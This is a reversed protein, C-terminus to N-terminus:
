PKLAPSQSPDGGNKLYDSYQQDKKAADADGLATDVQKLEDLIRASHTADYMWLRVDLARQLHDRAAPWQQQA